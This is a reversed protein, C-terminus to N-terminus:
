GYLFKITKSLRQKDAEILHTGGIIGYIPLGAREIITM